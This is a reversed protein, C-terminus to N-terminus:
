GAKAARAIALFDAAVLSAGGILAGAVDPLSLLAAANDPKVSGGYIIPISAGRPGLERRLEARIFGHMTVIDDEGAPRGTGIAWLPEYAVVGSFDKPLSGAIQWGVTETDRGSERQAETEGVCVLPTLGCSVAALVKARVSDDTEGHNARRESHGLIVWSAGCDRLMPASIEGTHPGNAAAHCNQGGVAINAGALIDAVEALVTAPPCALLQCGIDGAGARLARALDRASGRLGNMKWNGAILQRM